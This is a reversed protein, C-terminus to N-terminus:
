HHVRFILNLHPNRTDECVSELEYGGGSAAGPPAVVQSPTQYGLSMASDYTRAVRGERAKGQGLQEEVALLRRQEEMLETRLYQIEADSPKQRADVFQSCM